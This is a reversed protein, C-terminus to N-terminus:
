RGVASRLAPSVGVLEKPEPTKFASVKSTTL